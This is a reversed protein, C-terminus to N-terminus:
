LAARRAQLQLLHSGMAAYHLATCGYDCLTLLDAGADILMQTVEVAPDTRHSRGFKVDPIAVRSPLSVHSPLRVHLRSPLAPPLMAHDLGSPALPSACHSMAALHLATHGFPGRLNMNAKKALLLECCRIRLPEKMGFQAGRNSNQVSIMLASTGDYSQHDIDLGGKELLAMLEDPASADVARHLDTKSSECLPVFQKYIKIGGSSPEATAYSPPDPTGVHKPIMPEVVGGQSTISM